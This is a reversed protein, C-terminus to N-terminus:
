NAKARAEADRVLPNDTASIKPLQQTGSQGGFNVVKENKKLADVMKDFHDTVNGQEDVSSVIVNEQNYINNLETAVAPTIRGDSVLANLEAERSRKIMNVIGSPLQTKKPLSAKVTEVEKRLDTITGFLVDLIQEESASDEVKIELKTCLDKLAMTEVEMNVEKAFAVIQESAGELNSVEVKKRVFPLIKDILGMKKAEKPTLYREEELFARVEEESGGMRKKCIDVLSAEYAKLDESKKALEESSMPDFSSLKPMHFMIVSNSAAQIEDGALLIVAGASVALGEACTIIKKGSKRLKNYIGLATIYDGGRSTIRVFCSDDPSFGMQWDIYEDTVDQGIIGNVTIDLENKVSENAYLARVQKKCASESAHEGSSELVSWKGDSSQKYIKWKDDVKRCSYPM